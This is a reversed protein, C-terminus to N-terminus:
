RRGRVTWLPAARCAPRHRQALPEVQRRQHAQTLAICFAMFLLGHLWGAITVAQPIAAFYKLPMAIGLLLLFSVGEVLAVARLRGISTSFM